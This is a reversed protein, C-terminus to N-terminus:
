ESRLMTLPDLRSARRAPVYIAAAATAALLAAIATFVLPDTPSVGFLLSRLVRTIGASAALGAAMGIAVMTLGQRMVVSIVDRRAAGLALRIGIERARQAV